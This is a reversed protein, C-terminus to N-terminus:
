ININSTDTVTFRSDMPAYPLEISAGTIVDTNYIRITDTSDNRYTPM